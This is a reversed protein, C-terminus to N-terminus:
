KDIFSGKATDAVHRVNGATTIIRFDFVDFERSKEGANEREAILEERVRERDDPHVIGAFVAGTYAMFDELDDCEFLRVISENALLLEGSDPRHCCVAGPVNEIIDRPTFGSQLRVQTEMTPHYRRHHGKGAIKVSFLAADSRSYAQRLTQADEPVLM